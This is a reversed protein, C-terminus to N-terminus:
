RMRGNPAEDLLFVGAPDTPRESLTHNAFMTPPKGYNTCQPPRCVNAQVGEVEDPVPM